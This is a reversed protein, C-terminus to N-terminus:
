AWFGGGDNIVEADLCRRNQVLVGSNQLISDDKLMFCQFGSISTTGGHLV